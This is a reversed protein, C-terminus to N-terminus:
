KAVSKYCHDINWDIPKKVIKAPNGAILCNSELISKTVVSKAAVVSDGKIFVGKLILCGLGIWTHEGIEVDADHNSAEGESTLVSHYDTTHIEVNNSLLCNRKITIKCNRSARIITPQKKSAYVFTGEEIKIESGEELSFEVGKINCNKEIILQNDKGEFVVSCDRIVSHCIDIGKRTKM